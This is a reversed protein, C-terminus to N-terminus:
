TLLQADRDRAYPEKARALCVNLGPARASTGAVRTVATLLRKSRKQLVTKKSQRTMMGSREYHIPKREYHIPAPPFCRVAGLGKLRRGLGKLCVGLTDRAYIPAGLSHRAARREEKTTVATPM